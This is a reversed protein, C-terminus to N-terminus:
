FGKLSASRTFLKLLHNKHLFLFKLVEKKQTYYCIQQM